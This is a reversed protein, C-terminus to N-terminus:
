RLAPEVDAIPREDYRELGARKLVCPNRAILEDEVATGLMTKLLRYGKAVTSPGINSRRALNARWSRVRAPTIDVLRATEFEPRIYHRLLYDYLEVTRPRLSPRQVM